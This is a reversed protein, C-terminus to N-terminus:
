KLLLMRRTQQFSGARLRLLYVGSSMTRGLQDKGDWTIQYTGIDQYESVLNRIQQGMLNYIILKVLGVEPLAYRITTQPNFPNPQNPYLMYDFPSAMEATTIVEIPATPTLTQGNLVVQDLSLQLDGITKIHLYLISGSGSALSQTGAFAIRVREKEAHHAIMFNDYSADTTVDLVQIYENHGIELTASLLGERDTLVIPVLYTGDGQFQREGLTIIHNLVVPKLFPHNKLDGPPTINDDTQVPFRDILRVVYQLVQSADFAQVDGNGDVDSLLSDRDTYTNLGVAHALIAAADFAQVQDNSRVDGFLNVVQTVDQLSATGGQATLADVYTAFLTDESVLSLEGDDNAGIAGSLTPVRAQFIGTNVGTELLMVTEIEGSIVNAITASVQEAIGVDIDLDNDTVQIRVTDRVNNRGDLAQVVFSVLVEGDDGGVVEVTDYRTLTTGFSSLVDSFSVCISDGALTTIVGDESSGASLAFLTNVSGTFIGTNAGTEILTMTQTDNYLKGIATASIQDPNGVDLDFDTDTVSIHIVDGPHISDPSASLIGDTGVLTLSGDNSVASPNGDNFLVRTLELVTSTPVRNNATNFVLSILTGDSNITDQATSMAIFLTDINGSGLLINDEVSWGASVLTGLIETRNPSGPTVVTNDYAVKLETAVIGRDTADQLQVPIQVTSAYTAVTDPIIMTVESATLSTISFRMQPGPNGVEMYIIEPNPFANLAPPTLPLADSLFPVDPLTPTGLKNMELTFIVNDDNTQLNYGDGSTINDDQVNIWGTGTQFITQNYPLVGPGIDFEVNKIASQYVGAVPDGPQGDPTTSEFTYSGSITSTGVVLGPTGFQELTLVGTFNFTVPFAPIYKVTAFDWGSGGNQIGGTVYVNESADIAIANPSDGGVFQDGFRIDWAQNGSADYKITIYEDGNGTVNGLIYLDDSASIKMDVPQDSTNFPNDYHELWLQNGSASYKITTLDTLTEHSRGTVYIDGTSGVKLAVAQDHANGSGNYRVVWLENGNADYKVTAWDKGTGTGDSGGSVYVQSSANIDLGYSIDDGNDPGDYRSVWLQNGNTDYKVTAYDTNGSANKSPGTVYLNNASDRVMANAFDGNNGPGNYRADWLQTGTADYKVLVLDFNTSAGKSHGAVYVNGGSDVDIHLGEDINGAGDYQVAWLQNGNADYKITVIDWNVGAVVTYGTVYVNASSDVFIAHSGDYDNTTGDYRAVWLQNGSADYKITAIDDTANLGRSAGTIYVNGANDTTIDRAIDLNNDPGNYTAVWAEQVSQAFLTSSSLLGAIGIIALYIKIKQRCM